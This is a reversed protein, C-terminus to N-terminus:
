DNCDLMMNKLEVGRTKIQNYWLSDEMEL